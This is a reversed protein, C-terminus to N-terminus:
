RFKQVRLRLFGTPADTSPLSFEWTETADDAKILSETLGDSFWNILDESWEVGVSLDVPTTSFTWTQRLGQGPGFGIQCHSELRSTENPDLALAFKVLNAVGDRTPCADPGREAGVLGHFDCWQEYTGRIWLSLTISDSAVGVGGPTVRVWISLGTALPGLLLSSSTGSAVPNSTDGSRGLYWQYTPSAYDTFVEATQSVGIPAPGAQAPGVLTARQFECAGVDPSADRPFQRQDFVPIGAGAMGADIAPSGASLPMTPTPGGHDGLASLLPDSSLNHSGWPYGNQVM